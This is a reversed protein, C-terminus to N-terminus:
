CPWATPMMCDPLMTRVQRTLLKFRVDHRKHAAAIGEADFEDELDGVTQVLIGNAYQEIREWCQELTGCGPPCAWRTGYIKCRDAACMERVEPMVQLSEMNLECVDEFGADKALKIWDM